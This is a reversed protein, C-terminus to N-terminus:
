QALALALGTYCITWGDAITYMHLPTPIPPLLYYYTPSLQIVLIQIAPRLSICWGVQTRTYATNTIMCWYYGTALKSEGNSLTLSALLSDPELSDVAVNEM